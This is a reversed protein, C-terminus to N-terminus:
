RKIERRWAEVASVSLSFGYITEELTSPGETERRGMEFSLSVLARDEGIPISTGVSFMQETIEGTDSTEWDLPQRYYGAILPYRAANWLHDGEYRIGLAWREVSKDTVPRGDLRFKVWPSQHYDVEITVQDQPKVCLGFSFAQDFSLSMDQSSYIGAHRNESELTGDLDTKSRFLGGIRLRDLDLLAGAAFSEGMAFMDHIDTADSRDGSRFDTITRDRTDFFSVVVGASVVLRRSLSTSVFVPVSYISSERGFTVDYIELAYATDTDALTLRGEKELFLGSLISIRKLPVIVSITPFLTAITREEQGLRRSDTRRHAFGGGITIRDAFASAFPNLISSSLPDNSAVVAGGMARTAGAAQIVDRGTGSADFISDAYTQGAACALLLAAVIAIRLNM